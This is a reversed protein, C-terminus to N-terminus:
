SQGSASKEPLGAQRLAQAITEKRKQDKIWSDKVWREVSYNTNIRLVEAAEANAEQERGNMAYAATLYIHPPLYNPAREIAKKFEVIADKIRGAGLLASGYDFHFGATGVPNLRHAKEFLPISEQIRGAYNLVVAYRYNAWASGPDLTIGKEAEAIAKDYERQQLYL